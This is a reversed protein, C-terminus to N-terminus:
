FHLVIGSTLVHMKMKNLKCLLFFFVTFLTHCIQTHMPGFCFHLWFSISYNEMVFAFRLVCVCVRFYWRCFVFSNKTPCHALYIFPCIPSITLWLRLRHELNANVMNKSKNEVLGIICILFMACCHACVTQNSGRKGKKGNTLQTCLDLSLFFNNVLFLFLTVCKKSKQLQLDFRMQMADFAIFGVIRDLFIGARFTQMEAKFKVGSVANM